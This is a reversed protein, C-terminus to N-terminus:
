DGEAIPLSQFDIVDSRDAADWDYRDDRIAALMRRYGDVHQDLRGDGPARLSAYLVYPPYFRM